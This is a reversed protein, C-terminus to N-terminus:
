WPPRSTSSAKPVLLWMALYIVIAVGGMSLPILSNTGIAGPGVFLFRVFTVDLNFYDALGGCVGAVLRNSRRRYLKKAPKVHSGEYKAPKIHGRRGAPPQEANVM